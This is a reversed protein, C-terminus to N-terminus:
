KRFEVGPFHEFEKDGTVFIYDHAQAYQYGVADFFSIRQQRHQYRFRVARKLIERSVPVAAPELKKFWTEALDEGKERLLVAFFEALTLDTILFDQQLYPLFQPNGEAIEALAYTDLYKKKM